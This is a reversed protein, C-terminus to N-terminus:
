PPSGRQIPPPPQWRRLDSPDIYGDTILYVLGGGNEAREAHGLVDTLWGAYAWDLGVSRECISPFREVFRQALQRASMAAADTWGFYGAEQGSTYKAVVQGRDEPDWDILTFGDAAVNDSSTIWARWYAGSPSLFPLVRLRQYGAKHLEHIMSLVRICRRVIPDEPASQSVFSRTIEPPQWQLTSAAEGVVAKWLFKFRDPSNSTVAAGVFRRTSADLDARTHADEDFSLSITLYRQGAKLAHEYRWASSALHRLDLGLLAEYREFAGLRAPESDDSDDSDISAQDTVQSAAEQMETILSALFAQETEVDKQGTHCQMGFLVQYAQEALDRSPIAHLTLRFSPCEDALRTMTLWRVLPEHITFVVLEQEADSLAEFADPADRLSGEPPMREYRSVMAQLEPADRIRKRWREALTQLVHKLAPDWNEAEDEGWLCCEDWAHDILMGNYVAYGFLTEFHRDQESM